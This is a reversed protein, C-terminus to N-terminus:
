QAAAQYPGTIRLAVGRNLKWAEYLAFGAIVFHLPSTMGILIPSAYALALLVVLGVVFALAGPRERGPKAASDSPAVLRPAGPALATSLNATAKVSDARARFQKTLERAVLSSDTAVVASYTLFMALAQYRWGGRGNSGKRVASGVLLGVVIAVLGFEYGTLAEIGFYVGAGVLAAGAGLGLAKAFRRGPSSRNWAAIIQARCRECTVKANIEYYAKSIPQKCFACSVGGGPVAHEARDFQLSGDPPTGAAPDPV